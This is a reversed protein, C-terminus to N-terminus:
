GYLSLTLGRRNVQSRHLAYEVRQLPM